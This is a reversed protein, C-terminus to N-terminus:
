RENIKGLIVKLMVVYFLLIEKESKKIKQSTKERNKGKNLKKPRNECHSRM